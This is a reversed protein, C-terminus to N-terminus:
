NNWKLEFSGTVIVNKDPTKTEGADSIVSKSIFILKVDPYERKFWSIREDTDKNELNTINRQVKSTDQIKSSDLGVLCHEGGHNKDGLELFILDGAKISKWNQGEDKYKQTKKIQFQIVRLKM